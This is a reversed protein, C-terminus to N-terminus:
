GVRVMGDWVLLLPSLESSSYPIGMGYGGATWSGPGTASISMGGISMSSCRSRTAESSMDSAKASVWASGLTSAPGCAASYALRGLVPFAAGSLLSKSVSSCGSSLVRGLLSLLGGSVNM